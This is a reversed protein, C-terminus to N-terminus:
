RKNFVKIIEQLQEKTIGMENCKKAIEEAQQQSNKGQFVNVMQKQNPNLMGMMMQMPNSANGLQMLLNQLNM